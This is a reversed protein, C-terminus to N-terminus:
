NKKSEKMLRRIEGELQELINKLYAINEIAKKREQKEQGKFQRGKTKLNNAVATHNGILSLYYVFQALIKNMAQFERIYGEKLYHEEVREQSLEYFVKKYDGKRLAVECMLLTKKLAKFMTFAVIVSTM